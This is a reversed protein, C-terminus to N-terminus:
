SRITSASGVDIATGIGIVSLSAAVSHRKHRSVRRLTVRRATRSAATAFPGRATAPRTRSWAPAVTPQSLVSLPRPM